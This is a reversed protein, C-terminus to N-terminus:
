ATYNNTRNLPVFATANTPANVPGDPAVKDHTGRVATPPAAFLLSMLRPAPKPTVHVPVPVSKDIASTPDSAVDDVAPVNCNWNSAPVAPVTVRRARDRSVSCRM